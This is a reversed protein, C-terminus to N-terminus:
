FTEISYNCSFNEGKNIRIMGEKDNMDGSANVSDAIGHWPEICVFNSDKAAWLGLFPYNSIRFHLGHESKKCRLSIMDSQLGKFVLADEKFLSHSLPLITQSDFFPVPIDILGKRLLWRSATESKNFVLYYDSYYEQALLPVKFAPHAGISFLMSEDSTNKVEYSVALMNQQLEYTIYLEFHFPYHSLTEEDEKLVFVLKNLSSTHISFDKTRAFGHRELNYEKNKFRYVNEKLQGVIPFLVPAHKPWAEGAQWMYEIATQKNFLSCLEAGRHKITVRLFDNEISTSTMFISLILREFISCKEKEEM